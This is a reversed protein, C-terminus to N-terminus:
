RVVAREDRGEGDLGGPVFSHERVRALKAEGHQIRAAFNLQRRLESVAGDRRRSELQERTVLGRERWRNHQSDVGM